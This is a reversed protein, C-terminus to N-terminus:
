RYRCHRPRRRDLRPSGRRSRALREASVLGADVWSFEQSGASDRPDRARRDGGIQDPLREQRWDRVGSLLRRSEPFLLFLVRPWDFNSLVIHYEGNEMIKRVIRYFVSSCPVSVPPPLPPVTEALVEKLDELSKDVAADSDEGSQAEPENGNMEPTLSLVSREESASDGGGVSMGEGVAGLSKTSESRNGTRCVTFLMSLM